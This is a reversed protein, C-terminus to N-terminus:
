LLQQVEHTHGVRLFTLRAVKALGFFTLSAAAALMTNNKNSSATNDLQVNM